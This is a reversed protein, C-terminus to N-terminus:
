IDGVPEQRAPRPRPAEPVPKPKAPQALAPIASVPVAAGSPPPGGAPLRVRLNGKTPEVPQSQVLMVSAIVVVLMVTVGIRIIRAGRKALEADSLITFNETTPRAM